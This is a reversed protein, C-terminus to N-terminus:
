RRLHPILRAVTLAEKVGDATLLTAVAVATRQDAPDLGLGRRQDWGTGTGPRMSALLARLLDAESLADM